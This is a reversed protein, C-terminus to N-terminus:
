DKMGLAACARDHANRWAEIGELRACTGVPCGQVEYTKDCIDGCTATELETYIWEYTETSAYWELAARLRAIEAAMEAKTIPANESYDKQANVNVCVLGGPLRVEYMNGDYHRVIVGDYGNVRVHDGQHYIRPKQIANQETM